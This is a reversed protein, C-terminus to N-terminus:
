RKVPVLKAKKCTEPADEKGKYKKCFEALAKRSSQAAQGVQGRLLVKEEPTLNPDHALADEAGRKVAVGGEKLTKVAQQTEPRSAADNYAAKLKAASQQVGPDAKIDAAAQRATAQLKRGDESDAAQRFQEGAATAAKKMEAAAAKGEASKAASIAAASQAQVNNLTQATVGGKAAAAAAQPDAMLNGFAQSAQAQIKQLQEPTYAGGQPPMMGARAKSAESLADHAKAKLAAAEPSQMAQNAKAAVAKAAAEAQARDAAGAPAALVALSLLIAAKKM